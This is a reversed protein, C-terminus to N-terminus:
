KRKFNKINIGILGIFAIWYVISSIKFIIKQIDEEKKLEILKNNKEVETYEAYKGYGRQVFFEESNKLALGSDFWIYISILLIGFLVISMIKNKVRRNILSM